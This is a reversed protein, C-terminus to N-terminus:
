DLKRGYRIYLLTQMVGRSALLVLLSLWLIHGQDQLLALYYTALYLVMAVLMTNRLARTATLGVYIGDWIYCAYGVIPLIVMWILYDNALHLVEIDTSFLGLIPKGMLGYALSYAIALGGGWYLSYKVVEQLKNDAKAGTYKGVLAESAYAFGDIGYSMWNVLQLLIVNAALIMAGAESSKSYFFGFAITLCVTRIFLDQNVKFFARLADVERVAAMSVLRLYDAYRYRLLIIALLVGSYQAILTGWAAGRAALGLHVVAVYSVAINVVNIFITLIMPYIANQMGFLWGLLVYLALTAPVAWIRVDFYDTVIDAQSPIVQLLQSGVEYFPRQLLLIMTALGLALLLARTLHDTIRQNNAAGYAQSTLGTTGMRLFGFNWYFFSFMMSGLGVAGLHDTSLRGMLITDVTALLPVSINSIINPVALRLIERNIAM